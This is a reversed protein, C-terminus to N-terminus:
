EGDPGIKRQLNSWQARLTDISTSACTMAEISGELAQHMRVMRPGPPFRDAWDNMPGRWRSIASCAAAVDGAALAANVAQVATTV